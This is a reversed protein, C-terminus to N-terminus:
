LVEAIVDLHLRAGREWSFDTLRRRAADLLGKRLGADTWVAVIADALAQADHPDFYAAAEGCTEAVAPATSALVPCGCAMAELPPIGFGEYLSPFVFARAHGYLAKLEADSVRGVFQLPSDPSPRRGALGATLGGVVVCRPAATGLRALAAEVLTFNKSPTPSSVALLFPSDRLGCRDLVSDDAAIRNMHQWGETVLRLKAVPAGFCAHAEDSAFRSVALVRVARQVLSRLLTSYGWRFAPRYSQPMRIVAADHVTVIQRHLALPGTFGFGLLLSKAVRCPLELQEWAHGRLRGVTEFGINDLAPAPTGAPAVVTCRVGALVSRALMRDMEALTERAYRQVGTLPQALFRGNIILESM